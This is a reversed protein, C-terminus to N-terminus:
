CGIKTGQTKCRRTKWWLARGLMVMSTVESRLVAPLEDFGGLDDADGAMVSLPWM